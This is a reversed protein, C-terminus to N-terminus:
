FLQGERAAGQTMELPWSCLTGRGPCGDCLRPGPQAAVAFERALVADAREQLEGELAPVDQPRFIAAVPADPRELFCHVLEVESAGDRLAALAYAARQLGYSRAVLESPDAGALRDSKWDVILTRVGERAIVDFVGVLPMGGLAFAFPQERRVDKAQALRERLPSALFRVVLARLEDLERANPDAGARLAARRVAESDPPQARALDVQELLQHVITGRTTGLLQGRGRPGQPLDVPPLRLVRELYFRYGCRAHQELATYSLTQVPAARAVASVTEETGAGAHGSIEADIVHVSGGEDPLLAGASDVAM